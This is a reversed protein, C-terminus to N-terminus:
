GIRHCCRLLYRGRFGSGGRLQPVIPRAAEPAIYRAGGAEVLVIGDTPEGGKRKQQIEVGQASYGGPCEGAGPSVPCWRSRFSPSRSPVPARIRGPATARAKLRGFQVFPDRPASGPSSCPTFAPPLSKRIEPSNLRRPRRPNRWTPRTRVPNWPRRQRGGTVLAPFFWPRGM